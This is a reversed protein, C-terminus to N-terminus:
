NKDAIIIIIIIIIIIGYNFLICVLARACCIAANKVSVAPHRTWFM